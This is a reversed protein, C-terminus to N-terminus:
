AHLRSHPPVRRMLFDMQDGLINRNKLILWEHREPTYPVYVLEMGAQEPTRGGKRQNCAICASVLNQWVTGGGACQPHVHEVTLMSPKFEQACYACICRDRKFLLAREYPAFSFDQVIFEGTDVVLISGVEMISQLGTVANTGGRLVLATEGISHQVAGRSILNIATQADIWRDANWARDVALIQNEM